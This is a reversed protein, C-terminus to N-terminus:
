VPNTKLACGTYGRGGWERPIFEVEKDETGGLLTKRILKVKIVENLSNKVLDVVGSLNSHTQSNIDGFLHIADGFKLGAQDAPSGEIVDSVWAFPIKLEQRPPGSKIESSGVSMTESKPPREKTEEMPQDVKGMYHDEHLRFLGQEIKKM